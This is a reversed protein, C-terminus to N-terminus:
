FYDEVEMEKDLDRYFDIFLVPDGDKDAIWRPGTQLPYLRQLFSAVEEEQAERLYVIVSRM